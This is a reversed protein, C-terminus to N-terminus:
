EFSINKAHHTRFFTNFYHCHLAFLRVTVVHYWHYSLFFSPVYLIMLVNLSLKQTAKKFYGRHAPQELPHISVRLM